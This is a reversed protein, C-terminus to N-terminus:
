GAKLVLEDGLGLLREIVQEALFRVVPVVVGDGCLSLADIPKTPLVYRDPIGMLRDAECPQIARMRTWGGHRKAEGV